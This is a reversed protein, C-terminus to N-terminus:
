VYYLTHWTSNEDNPKPQLFRTEIGQFKEKLEKANFDDDSIKQLEANIIKVESPTLSITFFQELGKFLM